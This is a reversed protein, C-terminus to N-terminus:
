ARGVPGYVELAFREPTAMADLLTRAPFSPSYIRAGEAGRADGDARQRNRRRGVAAPAGRVASCDCEQHSCRTQSSKQNRNGRECRARRGVDVFADAVDNPQDVGDIPGQVGPRAEAKRIHMVETHDSEFALIAAPGDHPVRVHGPSM